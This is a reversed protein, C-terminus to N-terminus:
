RSLIKDEPAYTEYNAFLEEGKEIERSTIFTQGNDPTAINPHQSHNHYFSIDNGNLGHYPIYNYEGDHGYYEEIMYQIEKPLAAIETKKFKLWRVKRCNLYPNTDKPIDRIAFVGIGHKSLKLRCYTNRLNNLLKVRLSTTM